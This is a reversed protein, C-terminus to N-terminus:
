EDRLAVVPDIKAARRAPIYSALLAVTVLLGAVGFLILPDTPRVGFLLSQLYRTLTLAAACGILAGAIALVAGQRLFLRLVNDREAGLALRIGIEQTRRAAHFALLGYVGVSAVALALAAFIGSLASILREQYLDQAIQETETKMGVILLNSDFRSITQAIEPILANPDVATRIEFYVNGNWDAIPTYVTPWIADRVNGYKTDAVVGAIEYDISGSGFHRGLPSKAVLLRQVLTENVMVATPANKDHSRDSDEDNFVRGQRLPIQMTALFNSSIPLFHARAQIPPQSDLSIQGAMGENSLLAVGSRSVSAVAPLQSLQEQLSRYLNRPNRRSYTSDIRFVVLHQPNFGVNTAKLNGLTRVLLGAGALIPMTLAIQLLVILNGFALKRGAGVTRLGWEPNLASVLDARTSSSAPVLGFVVGVLVSVVLTFALVRVDSHVDLELPVYWNRSLFSVLVRAGFQGLLIGIAGGAVSLLLTETLLQSIIRGRTAGLAARMALEKQRTASRALMLGAINICSILLVLAVAALLIFLPESFNRRLTALGHAATALEIHPSDGAKFMAETGTTTSAAFVASLASVAQSVSIEPQLRGILEMWIANAAMQQRPYPPVSTRFAIPLWIDCTFGPDLAFQPSTIGAITFLTKGVLVQKGVISRDGGLETQWFGHSLVLTPAATESDDSRDLLRGFSPQVALTSFFEGSVFLGHLHSTHGDFNVNFETPVFAGVNSFISRQSQIQQFFVPSFSCGQSDLPADSLIARGQLAPGSGQPCNDYSATGKTEPIGKASWKLLVLREPDKVPITRLMIANILRFIASNGGIGLALTIVAVTTFGPSKRLQRVAFRLDQLLSSM